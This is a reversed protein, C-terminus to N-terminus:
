HIQLLRYALPKGNAIDTKQTTSPGFPEHYWWVLLLNTYFLMDGAYLGMTQQDLEERLRQQDFIVTADDEDM